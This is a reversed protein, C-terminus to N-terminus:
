GDYKEKTKLTLNNFEKYYNKFKYKEPVIVHDIRKLNKIKLTEAIIDSNQDNNAVLYNDNFFIDTLINESVLIPLGNVQSEILVLPFGESLSNLFLVDFCSYYENINNRNDLIIVNNDLNNDCIIQSIKEKEQGEGIFILKSNVNKKYISNFIDLTKKQNKVPLFAAVCGIVFDSENINLQKRITKRKLDNYEYKKYDIANNLVSFKKNGFM